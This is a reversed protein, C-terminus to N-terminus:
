QSWRFSLRGIVEDLWELEGSYFRHLYEMGLHMGRVDAPVADIKGLQAGIKERREGLLAVAEEAPLTDLYNLAVAGPFEPTPYAALSERVLRQFAAEGELTITYVRRPPRNGEREEHHTVWGDEEMKNLLKYANSKTLTVAMCGDHGLHHSLQYGHMEQGRLVGLLLLKKEM